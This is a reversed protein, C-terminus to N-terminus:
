SVGSFLRKCIGRLRAPFRLEKSARGPCIMELFGQAQAPPLKAADSPFSGPQAAHCWFAAFLMLPCGRTLEM